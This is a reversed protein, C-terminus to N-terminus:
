DRLSIQNQAKKNDTTGPKDSTKQRIVQKLVTMDHRTVIIKGGALVFKQFYGVLRKGRHDQM